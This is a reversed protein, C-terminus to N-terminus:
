FEKKQSFSRWKTQSSALKGCQPQSVIWWYLYRQSQSIIRWHFARDEFRQGASAKLGSRGAAKQTIQAGGNIAFGSRVAWPLWTPPLARAM